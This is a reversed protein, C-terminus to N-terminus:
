DVKVLMFKCGLAFDADISFTYVSGSVSPNFYRGTDMNYLVLSSESEISLSLKGVWYRCYLITEKTTVNLSLSPNSSSGLRIEKYGVSGNLLASTIIQLASSLGTSLTDIDTHNQDAFDELVAQINEVAVTVSNQLEELFLDSCYAVFDLDSSDYHITVYSNGLAAAVNATLFRYYGTNTWIKESSTGELYFGKSARVYLYQKELLLTKSTNIAM